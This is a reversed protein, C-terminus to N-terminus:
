DLSALKRTLNMIDIIIRRKEDNMGNLSISVRDQTDIGLIYDTTTGYIGTLKMLIDVPPMNTDNEYAGIAGKTLGLRDGVQKQSLHNRQRLDKLRKGMNEIM